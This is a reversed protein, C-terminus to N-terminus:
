AEPYVDFKEEKVECVDQLQSQLYASALAEQESGAKRNEFSNCVTEITARAQKASEERNDIFSQFKM